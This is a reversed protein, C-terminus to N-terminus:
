KRGPRGPKSFKERLAAVNSGQSSTSLSDFEEKLETIADLECKRSISINATNEIYHVVAAKASSFVMRQKIKSSPPCIYGFLASSPMGNKEIFLVFCPDAVDILKELDNLGTSEAKHLEVVEKSTDVTLIVTDIEKAKLKELADVASESFPFGVTSGVLTKRTGTGIDSGNEAVKVALFAKEKETLPPAAEKHALHRMLWGSEGTPLKSDLRVLMYCPEKEDYLDVVTKYDEDFDGSVPRTDTAVIVAGDIKLKFARIGEARNFASILEAATCFEDGQSLIGDGGLAFIEGAGKSERLALIAAERCVSEIDAGTYRETMEAMAQLDVDDDLQIDKTYIKFIAHRAVSDPPPVYIVRDFRGPRMLAADIMDPRNTAGVILVGDATEIGDMENLLTSLVRESVQDRAGQSDGVELGRKGVISEIEDFFIVSPASLRAKSFLDRVKPCDVNLAKILEPYLLPIRVIEALKNYAFDLNGLAAPTDSSKSPNSIHDAIIRPAALTRKEVEKITTKPSIIHELGM